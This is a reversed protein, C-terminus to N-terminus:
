FDGYSYYTNKPRTEHYDVAPSESDQGDFDFKHWDGCRVCLWGKRWHKRRLITMHIHPKGTFEFQSMESAEKLEQRYSSLVEFLSSLLGM